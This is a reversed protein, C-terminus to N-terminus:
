YARPELLMPCVSKSLRSSRTALYGHGYCDCFLWGVLSALISLADKSRDFCCQESLIMDSKCMERVRPWTPIRRVHRLAVVMSQSDDMVSGEEVTGPNHALAFITMSMLPPPSYMYRSRTTPSRWVNSALMHRKETSRYHWASRVFAHAPSCM